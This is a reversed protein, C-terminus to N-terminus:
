QPILVSRASAQSVITGVADFGVKSLPRVSQWKAMPFSQISALGELCKQCPLAVIGSGLPSPECLCISLNVHHLLQLLLRTCLTRLHVRGGASEHVHQGPNIFFAVNMAM